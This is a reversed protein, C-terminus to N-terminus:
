LNTYLEVEQLNRKQVYLEPFVRLHIEAPINM